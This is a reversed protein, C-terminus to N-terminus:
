SCDRPSPSTYLLCIKKVAEVGSVKPMRIDLLAVDVNEKTCINIAEEGDEAVGVIEIDAKLPLLLKLSERILSDDDCILVKISM